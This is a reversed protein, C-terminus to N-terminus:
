PGDAIGDVTLQVIDGTTCTGTFAPQPANTIRDSSSVGTDSAAALSPPGGADSASNALEFPASQLGASATAVYSGVLANATLPPSVALGNADTDVIAEPAGGAFSASAGGAPLSFAVPVGARPQGDADTMSVQLPAGFASGAVATQDAGSVASLQDCRGAHSVVEDFPLNDIGTFAIDDIEWGYAEVAVDSGVGFRVQVTQGAYATGLDVSYVDYGPWSPNSSVYAARGELPNAGGLQLVGGYGPSAASGIDIWSMGGDTSLEVVGGDYHDLGSSEFLHRTVYSFAFPADASVQLPPSVMWAVGATGTNPGFAVHDFVDFEGRFWAATPNTTQVTWAFATSEFDDVASRNANEDVNVGFSASSVVAADLGPDTLAVDIQIATPGSLGSLRFPVSVTQEAYPLTAPVAIESQLLTVGPTPSSFAISSGTLPNFGTNRVTVSVTGSEGSDVIGDADCYAAGEEIAIDAISAAHGFQFSETAGLNTTGFRDTPGAAGSGLGRRAFGAGCLQFDTTDQSYIAALLADRAEVFTPAAPTLKYGAVLYRKMRDQAEDFSLRGSDRLLSAYCEWLMSAWVEGTSHVAANNAGDQGFAPAPSNPLPVGQVIHRYTLPNRALNTSYPYRRIGYYYGQNPNAAFSPGGATYGGVVYVGSYNPNAGVLADEPKVLMLLAHFDAWGEGMGRAHNTSLGASDMILRNSIYHGWEHSIIANDMTGDRTVGNERQMRGSAPGDDLAIRLADADSLLISLVPITVAVDLGGLGPPVTGAVNDAIIVGVAGAAEANAAKVTFACTGRDVLAIRGVVDTVLAQCGDNITGGDVTSGDSAYRIDATVDFSQAGFAYAIGTPFEASLSGSVGLQSASAGTFIYMRMRPSAGDAPTLMNANNTGSYDQAQARMRDGGLGGRGYNDHQANGVAEDFGADYFWNHLWNTLYFLNVVSAKIQDASANAPQTPDYTHDFTDAATIDARFDGNEPQYGDPAFLNAFADVNNGVTETSGPPLWPDNNSYPINALTVLNPAVFPAQYGDALGTPHPAGNHGQPGGYPLYPSSQEGFLRYTFEQASLDHRFLISGDRASIVYAFGHTDSGNDVILEVYHAPVLGHPLRFYVPKARAPEALRAGGAGGSHSYYAYGNASGAALLHQARAQSAPLHEALAAAVADAPTSLFLQSPQVRAVDGASSVYGGISILRGDVGILVSARERFVEIGHVHNGFQVLAAGNPLRREDIVSLAEVEVPSIRYEGGLSILYDRAVRVTDTALLMPPHRSPNRDSAFLFTPVGLQQERHTRYALQSRADKRAAAISADRSRPSSPASALADIPELGHQGTALHPDAAGALSVLGASLVFACASGALTRRGISRSSNM